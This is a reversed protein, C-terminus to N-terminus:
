PRRTPGAGPASLATIRDSRLCRAHHHHRARRL